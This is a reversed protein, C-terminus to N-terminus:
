AGSLGALWVELWRPCAVLTCRDAQLRALVHAASDDVQVVEALDLVSVGDDVADVVMQVADGTLSGIVRARGPADPDRIIM